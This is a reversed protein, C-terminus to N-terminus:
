QTVEYIQAKALEARCPIRWGVGPGRRNKLIKLQMKHEVAESESQIITVVFEAKDIKQMSRGITDLSPAKEKDYGDRNVQSATWLPCRYVVALDLLESALRGYANYSDDGKKGAPPVAMEDLYDVLILDPTWGELTEISMLISRLNNATAESPKVYIIRLNRKDFCISLDRIKQLYVCDNEQVKSIECNTMNAALRSAIEPEKMEFSFYVVKKGQKFGAAALNVLVMSKGKNSPAMVFAIEGGGLGGKLYRDMTQYGTSVRRDSSGLDSETCLARMNPLVTVLDIGINKAAGVILAKQIKKEVGELQVTDDGKEFDTILNISDMMAIKLAQIRGFQAVQDRIRHIDATQLPISYIRYLDTVLKDRDGDRLGIKTARDYVIQVVTDRGPKQRYKDFFELLLRIIEQESYNEFYEPRLADRSSVLLTSDQLLASVILSQYEATFRYNM